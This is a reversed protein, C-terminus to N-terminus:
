LRHRIKTLPDSSRGEIRTTPTPAYVILMISHFPSSHVSTFKYNRRESTYHFEGRSGANESLRFGDLRIQGRKSFTFAQSDELAAQAGEVVLFPNTQAFTEAVADRIQFPNLEGVAGDLDIDPALVNLLLAEDADCKVPQILLSIVRDVEAR